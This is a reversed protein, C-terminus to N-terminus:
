THCRPELHVVSSLARVWQMPLRHIGTLVGSWTARIIQPLGGCLGADM